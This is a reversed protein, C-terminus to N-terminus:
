PQPNGPDGAGTLLSLTTAVAISFIEQARDGLSPCRQTILPVEEGKIPRSCKYFAFSLLVGEWIFIGVLARYLFVKPRFPQPDKGIKM